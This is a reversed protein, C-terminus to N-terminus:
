AWIPLPKQKAKSGAAPSGQLCGCLGRQCQWVSQASRTFREDSPEAVADTSVMVVVGAYADM